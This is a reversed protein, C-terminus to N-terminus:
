GDHLFPMVLARMYRQKRHAGVQDDGFVVLKPRNVILGERQGSLREEDTDGPYYEIVDDLIIVGRFATARDSFVYLLPDGTTWIRDGPDSHTRVFDIESQPVPPPEPRYTDRKEWEAALRPGTIVLALAIWSAGVWRRVGDGARRLAADLAMAGVAACLF